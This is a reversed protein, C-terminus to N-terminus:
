NEQDGYVKYYESNKYILQLEDDTKGEKLDIELQDWLEKQCINKKELNLRIEELGNKFEEESIDFDDILPSVKLFNSLIDNELINTADVYTLSESSDENNDNCSSFFVLTV